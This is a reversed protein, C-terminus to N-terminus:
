SAEVKQLQLEPNYTDTDLLRIARNPCPKYCAGCGTCSDMDIIPFPVGGIRPQFHIAEMECQEACTMCAVGRYALCTDEIVAKLLWAPSTDASLAGEQCATLCAQCFTCEGRMFDVQPFGGQGRVLIKEACAKICADCRTCLETFLQESRAWPPRPQSRNGLVDGRIFQARSVAKIM